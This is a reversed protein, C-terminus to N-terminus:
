PRHRMDPENGNVAIMLPSFLGVATRKASRSCKLATKVPMRSLRLTMSLIEAISPTAGSCSAQMKSSMLSRPMAPNHPSRIMTLRLGCMGAMGLDNIDDFICALQEPAVGNNTSIKEIVERKDRIGTFVANFHEREAFRIATPNNEGSIIATFPLSGSMRWLGYRLMNTGMSDAESFGSHTGEGKRGSNFVGDWDFVIGRCQRVTAAIATAATVFRGGASEFRQQIAALTADPSM